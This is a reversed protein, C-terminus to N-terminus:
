APVSEPAPEPALLPHCDWEVIDETRTVQVTPVAALAEPDAVEEVVERTGVVRRTCVEERKAYVLVHVGHVRGKLQFGYNGDETVNKEARGDLVLAWAAAEAKTDTFVSFSSAYESSGPYPLVLDDHAELADAIKRLGAIYDARTDTADM